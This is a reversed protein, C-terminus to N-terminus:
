EKTMPIRIRLGPAIQQVLVVVKKRKEVTLFKGFIEGSLLPRYYFTATPNKLFYEQDIDMIEDLIRSDEENLIEQKSNRNEKLKKQKGM